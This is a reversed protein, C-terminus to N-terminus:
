NTGNWDELIDKETWGNESLNQFAILAAAAETKIIKSLTMFSQSHEIPLGIYDEM